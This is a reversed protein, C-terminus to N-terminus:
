QRGSEENLRQIMRKGDSEQMNKKQQETLGNEKKM